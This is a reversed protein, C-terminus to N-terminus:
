GGLLARRAVATFQFALRTLELRRERELAAGTLGDIRWGEGNVRVLVTQGLAAGTAADTLTVSGEMLSLAGPLTPRNPSSIEIRTVVLKVIAEREGAQWSMTRTAARSVAQDVDTFQIFQGITQTQLDSVDVEAGDFRLELRQAASLGSGPLPLGTEPACATLIMSLLLVSLVRM